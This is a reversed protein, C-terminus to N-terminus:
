PHMPPPVNKVLALSKLVVENEGFVALIAALETNMDGAWVLCDRKIGDCLYRQMNLHVTYASTDYIKNIVPDSCEFSGRYDIDRYILTATICRIEMFMDPSTLKVYAFRFGSENTKNSAWPGSGTQMDRNAHDNTSNKIGIAHIAESVIEGLLITYNAYAGNMSWVSVTLTGHLERGFDVIVSANTDSGRNDLVCQDHYGYIAVQAPKYETLHEAGHVTGNTLVM